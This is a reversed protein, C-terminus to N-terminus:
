PPALVSPPVDTDGIARYLTASPKAVLWRGGVRTLYVIDDEITPERVDAYETFVTGVVRASDGDVQASIAGTMESREWVPAGRPSRYGLSARVTAPCSGRPKPFKVRDLARPVFQQCLARGNRLTLARVYSRAVGAVAREEPSEPPPGSPGPDLGEPDREPPPLKEDDGPTRKPRTTPERADSAPETVASGPTTGSEVEDEDEALGFAIGAATGALLAAVLAVIM